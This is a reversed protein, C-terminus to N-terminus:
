VLRNAEDLCLPSSIIIFISQITFHNFNPIDTKVPIAAKNIKRGIKNHTPMNSKKMINLFHLLQRIAHLSTISRDFFIKFFRM